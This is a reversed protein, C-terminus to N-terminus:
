AGYYVDFFVYTSVVILRNIVPYSAIAAFLSSNSSRKAVVKAGISSVTDINERVNTPFM